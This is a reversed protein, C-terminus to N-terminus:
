FLIPLSPTIPLRTGSRTPTYSGGSLPVVSPGRGMFITRRTRGDDEVEMKKRRAGGVRRWGFWGM